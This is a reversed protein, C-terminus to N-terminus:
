LFMATMADANTAADLRYNGPSCASQENPTPANM